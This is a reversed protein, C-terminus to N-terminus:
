IKKWFRAADAPRYDSPRASVVPMPVPGTIQATLRRGDELMIPKGAKLGSVTLWFRYALLKQRGPM